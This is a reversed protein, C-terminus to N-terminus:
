FYLIFVKEWAMMREACRANHLIENWGVSNKQEATEIEEIIEWFWDLDYSLGTTKSTLNKIKSSGNKLKIM